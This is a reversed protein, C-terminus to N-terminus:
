AVFHRLDFYVLMYTKGEKDTVRLLGKSGTPFSFHLQYEVDVHMYEINVFRHNRTIINQKFDFQWNIQKLVHRNSVKPTDSDHGHITVPVTFNDFVSKTLLADIHITNSTNSLTYDESTWLKQVAINEIQTTTQMSTVGEREMAYNEAYRMIDRFVGKGRESPLVGYLIGKCKGESQFNFTAFGIVEEGRKVLWCIREDNDEAYSRVWDQYGETVSQNDFFPNIRYHNVYSGFTEKVIANLAEHDAQGARKLTLEKHQLERPKKNTLDKTYYALTDAVIFPMATKELRNLQSLNVTPIRIIATDVNNELIQNLLSTADIEELRARYIVLGFRQSDIKHYKLISM